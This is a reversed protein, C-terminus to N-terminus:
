LNIVAVAIVGFIMGIWIRKTWREHFFIWDCCAIFILTFVNSASYLVGSKIGSALAVLMLLNYGGLAMGIVPLGLLLSRDLPFKPTDPKRLILAIIGCLVASVINSGLLFLEREGAFSSHTFIVSIGNGIGSFLCTVITLPFWIPDLRANGVKRFLLCAVSLLVMGILNFPTISEQYLLAGVMMPIVFNFQTVTVIMSLSGKRMALIYFLQFCVACAGSVLSFLMTQWSPIERLFLLALVVATIAFILGNLVFSDRIVRIKGKSFAGQLTAKTTALLALMVAFHM